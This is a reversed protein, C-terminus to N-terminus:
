IEIDTEVEIETEIVNQVHNYIETTVDPSELSIVISYRLSEEWRAKRKHEKWWGGVPFVALKSKGALEAATGNWIDCHVSGRTRLDPGLFWNDNDDSQTSDVDDFSGSVRRQFSEVSDTPSMTTFRLGFSSYQFKKISGRRSPNPEIYYSVTVKMKIEADGLERLVDTPWPLDILDFNDYTVYGSDTQKYPTLTRQSVLTVENKACALAYEIDPVGYGYKRILSHVEIKRSFPAFENLMQETWSASHIILARVTEPWYEPYSSQIKATLNAALSAASSTGTSYDFVKNNAGSTTIVGLSATETAETGENNVALNGGELVIDPKLPFNSTKSWTLTTTSTPSLSGKDALPSWAGLLSPEQLNDFNTYAGVTLANWSQAPDQVSLLENMEPYNLPYGDYRANGASVIFLKQNSGEGYSVKDLTASWSTAEGKIGLHPDTVAMSYIKEKTPSAIESQSVAQETISPYNAVNNSGIPPLIKVSGISHNIDITENDLLNKLMDGYQVIGIMNTGHFLHHSDHVGWEADISTLKEPDVISELLPNHINAGTDLVWVETENEVHNIRNNFDTALEFQEEINMDDIIPHPTDAPKRLECIIKQYHLINSLNKSTSKVLVMFRDVFAVPNGFQEINYTSCFNNFKGLIVDTGFIWVEWYVELNEDEPYDSGDSTWLSELIALKLDNISEVLFKPKSEEFSKKIKKELRDVKGEPVYVVVQDSGDDNKRYSVVEFGTRSDELNEFKLEFEEGEAEDKEKGKVEIYFGEPEVELNQAERFEELERSAFNLKELVTEAHRERNIRTPYANNANGRAPRPYVYDHSNVFNNPLLINKNPRELNGGM